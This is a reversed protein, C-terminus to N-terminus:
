ELENLIELAKASIRDDLLCAIASIFEKPAKQLQLDEVYSNLISARNFRNQSLITLLQKKIEADEKAVRMLTVFTENEGVSPNMKQYLTM